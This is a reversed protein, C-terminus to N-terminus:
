CFFIIRFCSWIKMIPYLLRMKKKLLAKLKLLVLLMLKQVSLALQRRCLNDSGVCYDKSLDPIKLSHGLLLHLFIWKSWDSSRDIICKEFNLLTSLDKKQKLDMFIVWKFCLLQKIMWVVRSNVKNLLGIHFGAFEKVNMEALRLPSEGTIGQLLQKFDRSHVLSLGSSHNKVKIGIEQPVKKGM